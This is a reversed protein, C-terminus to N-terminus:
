VVVNVLPNGEGLMAKIQDIITVEMEEEDVSGKITTTNGGARWCLCAGWHWQTAQQGSVARNSSSPRQSALPSSKTNLAQQHLSHSMM